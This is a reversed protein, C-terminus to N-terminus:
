SAFAFGLGDLLQSFDLNWFSRVVELAVIGFISTSGGTHRKQGQNAKQNVSEACKLRM